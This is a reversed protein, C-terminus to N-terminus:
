GIPTQNAKCMNEPCPFRYFRQNLYLTVDDIDGANWGRGVQESWRQVQARVGAFSKAKRANRHHVSSEHCAGCYTEYLVKGHEIGGAAQALSLGLFVALLLAILAGPMAIRSVM